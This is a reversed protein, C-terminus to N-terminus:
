SILTVGDEILVDVEGAALTYQYVHRWGTGGPQMATIWCVLHTVGPIHPKALILFDLKTSAGIESAGIKFPQAEKLVAEVGKFFFKIAAATEPNAEVRFEIEGGTSDFKWKENGLLGDAM